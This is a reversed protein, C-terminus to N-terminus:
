AKCPVDEVTQVDIQWKGHVRNLRTVLNSHSSGVSGPVIQGTRANKLGSGSTNDCDHVWAANGRIKVSLIHLVIHGFSVEDKAWATSFTRVFNKITPANLYPRLLRRVTAPNRSNFAAAVASTYGTYAAVVQQRPSLPRPREVSAASTPAAKSPLRVSTAVGACGALLSVLCALIVLRAIPRAPRSPM